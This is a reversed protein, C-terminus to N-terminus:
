LVPSHIGYQEGSCQEPGSAGLLWGAQHLALADELRMGNRKGVGFDVRILGDGHGFAALVRACGRIGALKPKSGDAGGAGDANRSVATEMRM